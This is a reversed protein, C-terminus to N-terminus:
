LSHEKNNKKTIVLSFPFCLMRIASVTAVTLLSLVLVFALLTVSPSSFRELIQIKIKVPKEITYM